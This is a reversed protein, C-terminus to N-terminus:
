HKDFRVATSYAHGPLGEAYSLVEITNKIQKLGDKTCEQVEMWKGFAEVGLPPFMRANRSTPLVHNAGTAYDGSSKSTWKGLFVSGANQIKKLLKTNNKTMLQLHEPAYINCFDAAEDMSDVIAILGNTELSQTVYDKTSLKDIQKLMEEKTEKARKESLSLLVGASDPGHEADAILDAAVYSPNASEDAIILVESPGAPMDIAVHQSVLTKAAAVYANGPGFIKDVPPITETGYALAAVAQAGGGKYIRTVGAIDAAVLISPAITGDNQPPSMIIIDKCGAIVAPLTTMLVSSPYVAKGGPVYLGIKEIARWERWVRIGATPEVAHTRTQTLQGKHVTKIHDTAQQLAKVLENDVRTYAQQIEKDSVVLDDVEVKDFRLTYDKLANNGKERVTNIIDQVVPYVNTTSGSNRQVVRERIGKPLKKLQYFPINM